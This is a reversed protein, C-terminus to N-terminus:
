GTFPQRFVSLFQSSPLVHVTSEHSGLVPQVWVPGVPPSFHQSFFASHSSSLGHVSFAQSLPM